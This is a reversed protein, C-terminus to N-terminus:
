LFSRLLVAVGCATAALGLPVQVRAIRALVEKGKAKAAENRSLLLKNLLGFGLLFGILIDLVIAALTVASWLPAVGFLQLLGSGSRVLELVGYALLGLGLFGQYPAVKAFVERANEKRAIIFSSAALLGGAITLSAFLM